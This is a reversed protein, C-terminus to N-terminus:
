KALVELEALKEERELRKSCLWMRDLPYLM